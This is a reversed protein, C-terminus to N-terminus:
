TCKSHLLQLNAKPKECRGFGRAWIFHRKFLDASGGILSGVSKPFSLGVDLQWVKCQTFFVDQGGINCSNIQFHVGILGATLGGKTM